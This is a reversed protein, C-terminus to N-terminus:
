KRPMKELYISAMQELFDIKEDLTAEVSARMALEEALIRNGDRYSKVVSAALEAVRCATIYPRRSKPWGSYEQDIRHNFEKACSEFLTTASALPAARLAEFMTRNIVYDDSASAQGGYASLIFISLCAALAMSKIKRM